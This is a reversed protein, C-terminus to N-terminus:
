IGVSLDVSKHYTCVPGGQTCTAGLYHHCCALEEPESDLGEFGHSVNVSGFTMLNVDSPITASV